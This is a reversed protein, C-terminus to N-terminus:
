GDEEMKKEFEEVPMPGGFYFGQILDCGKEALFNVQEETEIGEAVTQMELREALHLIEEVVVDGRATHTKPNFFEMDIKLVDLPLNKLSNLSSYGAGFDDMSIKFGYQHLKNTIEILEDENELFASETIEIEIYKHETGYSDVLGCIHDALNEKGFHLRSVNISIPIQKKGDLKWKTLLKSVHAIMYDDIRTISGNAELIPIFKGPPVVQKGDKVWRILAEAAVLKRTTASYKPQLYVVLEENRIASELSDEVERNWLQTELLENSFYGVRGKNQNEIAGRAESAYNYLQDIEIGTRRAKVGSYSREAPPILYVGCYYSVQMNPMINTLDAMMTRLRKTCKDRNDCVLFLAFDAKAYHVAVENRKLKVSLFKDIAQLLEDGQKVGYCSCYERYKDIQVNVVAFMKGVQFPSRLIRETKSQFYYWNRGGTVPDMFLLKAFRRHSCINHITVAVMMLLLFVFVGMAVIGMACVYYVDKRRITLYSKIYLHCDTDHLTSEMWFPFEYLTENLWAVEDGVQDAAIAKWAIQRVPLLIGRHKYEEMMRSDMYATYEKDFTIEVVIDTLPVSRGSNYITHGKGDAFYVGRAEEGDAGESVYKELVEEVTVEDYSLAHEVSVGVNKTANYAQEVRTGGVYLIFLEVFMFIVALFAVSITIFLLVM